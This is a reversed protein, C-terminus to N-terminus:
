EQSDALDVIKDRDASPDGDMLQEIVGLGPLTM